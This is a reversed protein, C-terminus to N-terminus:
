ENPLFLVFRIDDKPTFNMRQLEFRAPGTKTLGNMCLSLVAKPNEKAITLHFDGIAGKWNAGTTLVYEVEVAAVGPSKLPDKRAEVQAARLLRRVGATGSEDLCYEGYGSLDDGSYVTNGGTIPKYSHDVTITEGAPFRQQWHFTAQLSWLPSVEDDRNIPGDGTDFLGKAMLDQWVDDPLAALKEDWGPSRANIPLGAKVLVATVDTGEDLLAKEELATEVTEGDVKVRFDVFNREAGVPLEINAIAGQDIAPLPFAVTTTIDRDSANRFAYRVRVESPSLYLDESALEIHESTVLELGGAGLVALTDNAHVPVTAAFLFALSAPWGVYHRWRSRIM